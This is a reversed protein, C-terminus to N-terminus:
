EEEFTVTLLGKRVNFEGPRCLNGNVILVSQGVAVDHPDISSQMGQFTAYDESAQAKESM